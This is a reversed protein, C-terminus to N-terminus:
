KFDRQVIDLTVDSGEEVFVLLHQNLNGGVYIRVANVMRRPNDDRLLPNQNQPISASVTGIVM